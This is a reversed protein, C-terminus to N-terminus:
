LLLLLWVMTQREPEKWRRLLAARMTTEMVMVAVAVAVAAAALATLLMSRWAMAVLM